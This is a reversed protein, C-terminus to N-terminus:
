QLPYPTLVYDKSALGSRDDGHCGTCTPHGFGSFPISTGFGEYWYWGLGGDSDDQAKVSAAWGIRAGDGGFLEKVAASGNPHSANGAALSDLLPDNVYTLVQTGHPGRSRHLASEHAWDLYNGAQLWALMEPGSTPISPARCGHLSNDVVLVVEDIGVKKDDNADAPPCLEVPRSRLAIDTSLILEDIGVFDDENCDGICASIPSTAAPAYLAATFLVSLLAMRLSCSM